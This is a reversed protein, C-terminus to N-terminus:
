LYVIGRNLYFIDIILLLYLYSYMKIEEKDIFKFHSYKSRIDLKDSSFLIELLPNIKYESKIIDILSHASKKTEIYNNVDCCDIMKSPLNLNMCITDLLGDFIPVSIFSQYYLKKRFNNISELIFISVTNPYTTISPTLEIKNIYKKLCVKKKKIIDELIVDIFYFNYHFNDNFLNSLVDMNIKNNKEFISLFDDRTNNFYFIDKKLNIM